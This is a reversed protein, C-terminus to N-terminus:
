RCGKGSQAMTYVGAKDDRAVGMEMGQNATAVFKLGDRGLLEDHLEKHRLWLVPQL